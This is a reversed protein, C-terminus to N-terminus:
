MYTNEYRVTWYAGFFDERFSSHWQFCMNWYHHKYLWRYFNNIFMHFRRVIIQIWAWFFIEILKLSTNCICNLQFLLLDKKVDNITYLLFDINNASKLIARTHGSSPIIVNSFILNSKIHTNTWWPWLGNSGKWDYPTQLWEGKLSIRLLWHAM